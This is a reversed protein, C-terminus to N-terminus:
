VIILRMVIVQGETHRPYYDLAYTKLETTPPHSEKEGERGNKNGQKISNENIKALLTEEGWRKRPNNPRWNVSQGNLMHVTLSSHIEALGAWDRM